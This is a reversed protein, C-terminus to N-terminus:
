TAKHGDNRSALREITQLTRENEILASLKQVLANRNRTGSIDGSTMHFRGSAIRELFKRSCKPQAILKEAEELSLLSIEEDSLSTPETTQVSRALIELRKAADLTSLYEVISVYASLIDSDSQAVRLTDGVARMLVLAREFDHSLKETESTVTRRSGEVASLGPAPGSPVITDPGARDLRLQKNSSSKKTQRSTM